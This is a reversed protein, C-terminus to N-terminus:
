DCTRDPVRQCLLADDRAACGDQTARYDVNVRAVRTRRLGGRVTWRRLTACPRRIFRSGIPSKCPQRAEDFIQFSRWCMKWMRRTLPTQLRWSLTSHKARCAGGRAAAPRARSRVFAKRAAPLSSTAQTRGTLYRDMDQVPRMEYQYLTLNRLQSAINERVLAMEPVFFEDSQTQFDGCGITHCDPPPTAGGAPCTLYYRLCQPEIPVRDPQGDGDADPFLLDGELVGEGPLGEFPELYRWVDNTVEANLRSSHAFQITLTGEFGIPNRGDQGGFDGCEGVVRAGSQVGFQIIGGVDVSAGVSASVELQGECNREVSITLGISGSVQPSFRQLTLSGSATPKLEILKGSVCVRIPNLQWEKSVDATIANQKGEALSFSGQLQLPQELSFKLCRRGNECV